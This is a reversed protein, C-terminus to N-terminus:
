LNVLVLALTGLRAVGIIEPHTSLSAPRHVQLPLIAAREKMRQMEQVTNVELGHFRNVKLIASDHQRSHLISYTEVYRLLCVYVRALRDSNRNHSGVELTTEPPSVTPYPPIRHMEM